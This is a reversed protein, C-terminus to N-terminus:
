SSQTSEYIVVSHVGIISVLLTEQKEIARFRIEASPTENSPSLWM